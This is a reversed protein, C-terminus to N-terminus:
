ASLNELLFQAKFQNEEGFAQKVLEECNSDAAVNAKLMAKLQQFLQPDICRKEMRIPSDCFLKILPLAIGAQLEPISSLFVFFELIQQSAGLEYLPPINAFIEDFPLESVPFEAENAKHILSLCILCSNLQKELTDSSPLDKSEAIKTAAFTLFTGFDDTKGGAVALTAACRLASAYNESELAQPISAYVEENLKDTLVSYNKEVFAYICPGKTEDTLDSSLNEIEGVLEAKMEENQLCVALFDFAATYYTKMSQGPETRLMVGGSLAIGVIKVIDEKITELSVQQALAFCNQLTVLSATATDLDGAGGTEALSIALTAIRMIMEATAEGVGIEALGKALFQIGIACSYTISSSFSSIEEQLIDSVAGFHEALSEHYISLIQCSVRIAAAVVLSNENFFCDDADEEGDGLADFNFEDGQHEKQEMSQQVDASMIEILKALIQAILESNEEHDILPLMAGFTHIAEFCAVSETDICGVVSEIIDKLYPSVKEPSTTCLKSLCYIANPIASEDGSSLVSVILGMIEEIHYIVNEESHKVLSAVCNIAASRLEAYEEAEIIKNLSEFSMEFINDTTPLCDLISEFANLFQQTPAEVMVGLFVSVLESLNIFPNRKFAATYASVSAAAISRISAKENQIASALLQEVHSLHEEDYFSNFEDFTSTLLSIVSYLTEETIEEEAQTVVEFVMDFIANSEVALPGIAWFNNDSSLDCEESEDIVATQATFIVYSSILAQLHEPLPTEMELVMNLSPFISDCVNMVFKRLQEDVDGNQIIEASKEFISLLVTVIPEADESAGKDMYDNIESEIFNVLFTSFNYSKPANNQQIYGILSEFGQNLLNPFDGCFADEGSQAIKAALVLTYDVVGSEIAHANLEQAFEVIASNTPNLINSAKIMIRVAAEFEFQQTIERSSVFGYLMEDMSENYISTEFYFLINRRIFESKPSFFLELIEHIMEENQAILEKNVKMCRGLGIVAMKQHNANPSQQIIEVLQQFSEINSHFENIQQSIENGNQNVLNNLQDYLQTIM